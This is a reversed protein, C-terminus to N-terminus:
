SRRRRRLAAIAVALGLGLFANQTSSGPAGVSCAGGGATSGQKQWGDPGAGGTGSTNDCPPQVPCTPPTGKTKFAQLTRQIQTQDASAQLQLDAALAVRSLEGHMRSVWLNNMPISGYLHDVDDSANQMANMGMDDAYGSDQPSYMAADLLPQGLTWMSAPEGAELLWSKGGSQDFGQKKLQAYNSSSTDWDWILQDQTVQFSPLNKPEYRGEGVVWLTIATTAGTGAAVMRLPLVPSAGATTIRVPKMTDIGKGPVLKLALFDFGENVYADVVPAVDAPLNYGHSVLWTELAKPDTSKLQVTEYPGVVKQAVITVGGGGGGGAGSSSTSAGSSNVGCGPTGCNIVPSQISVQSQLELNQFMADSSLGIDVTGMVPLVWAFDQPNGQYKISDWLTTQQQSISLVMKHGTVQTSESQSVFCGGCASADHTVAAAAALPVLLFFAKAFRM